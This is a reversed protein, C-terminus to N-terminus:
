KKDQLIFKEEVSAGPNYEWRDGVRAYLSTTRPDAHGLLDQVQRLDAGARMSLTGATHRLSHASLTRGPTHKLETAELYRDIIARIGRRVYDNSNIKRRLVKRRVELYKELQLRLNDTLPIIRTSRKASVRLGCKNGQRVIDEIKLAHMEVTRCGELSMIGVLVRDRYIALKQKQTKARDLQSQIERLLLALEEETLYTIRSAPDEKSVPAKIGDVPNTSILGKVIAAQYLRRIINLKTAITNNKKKEDILFKRYQKIDDAEVELPQLLNDRCWNFYQKTNSIYNRITDTSAAGNGVELELFEAFIQDLDIIETNSGTSTLRTSEKNLPYVPKTEVVPIIDIKM